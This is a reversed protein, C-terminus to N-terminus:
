ERHLHRVVEPPVSENIWWGMEQLRQAVARLAGVYDSPGGNAEVALAIIWLQDAKPLQEIEPLGVTNWM